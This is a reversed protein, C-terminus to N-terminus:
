KSRVVPRQRVLVLDIQYVSMIVLFILTTGDAPLDLGNTGM